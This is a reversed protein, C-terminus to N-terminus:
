LNFIRIPTLTHHEVKGIALLINDHFVRILSCQPFSVGGIKQGQRLRLAESEELHLVPIDDLVADASLLIASLEDALPAVHVIKEINELLITHDLKFNGVMTRTLRVVHGLSGTAIAIDQALSRIYTGKSCQCILTVENEKTVLEEHIRLSFIHVPRPSMVVDEGNRSRAYARQGDIKIASYAPPVQMIDGTFQDLVDGIEQPSPIYTCTKTIEGEQDATNTEEGLRITFIYEKKADMMYPVTKTAEGLAIPLVGDAAPDLTGAHGVKQAKTLWKIKSVVQTSTMGKPKEINLWGHIPIGKRKRAM